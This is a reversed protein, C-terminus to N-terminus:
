ERGGAELPQDELLADRRGIAPEGLRAVRGRRLELVHAFDRQAVAALQEGLSSCCRSGPPPGNPNGGSWALSAANLATSGELLFDCPSACIHCLDRIKPKTAGFIVTKFVTLGRSRDGPNSDRGKRKHLWIQGKAGRKRAEKHNRRDNRLVAASTCSAAPSVFHSACPSACPYDPSGRWARARARARARGSAAYGARTAHAISAPRATLKLNVQSGSCTTAMPPDRLNGVL